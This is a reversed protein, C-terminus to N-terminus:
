TQGHETVHQADEEMDEDVGTTHPPSVCDEYQDVQQIQKTIWKSRTGADSKYSCREPDLAAETHM